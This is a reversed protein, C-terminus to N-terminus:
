KPLCFQIVLFALPKHVHKTSNVVQRFSRDGDNSIVVFTSGQQVQKIRDDCQRFAHYPLDKNLYELTKTVEILYWITVKTPKRRRLDQYGVFSLDLEAQPNVIM